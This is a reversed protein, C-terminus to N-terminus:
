AENEAKCYGVKKNNKKMRPKVAWRPVPFDKEKLAKPDCV